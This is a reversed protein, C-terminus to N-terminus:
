YKNDMLLAEVFIAVENQGTSSKAEFQFDTKEAIRFPVQRDYNVQSTQFGAEAVRLIRGYHTRTYNRITITQAGTATGSNATIRFIYLSYGAPVTYSCAQTIGLEEEIYAYVTGGNSISINGVNSGATILATNVRLFPQITTVPTTGNLPVIEAISKYDADLGQILIPMTDGANSSVASMTLASTPYNKAGGYNWVTEFSAEVSRNFGFINAAGVGPIQKSVVELMYHPSSSEDQVYGM